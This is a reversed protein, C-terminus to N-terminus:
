VEVLLVLYVGPLFLKLIEVFIQSPRYRSYLVFYISVNIKSYSTQVDAIFAAFFHDTLWSYVCFTKHRGFMYFLIFYISYYINRFM